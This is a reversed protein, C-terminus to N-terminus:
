SLDLCNKKLRVSCVDCKFPLKHFNKMHVKLKKHLYYSKHCFVCKIPKVHVTNHEVLSDKRSFSKECIGCKFPKKGKHVVVM